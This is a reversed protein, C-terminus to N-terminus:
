NSRLNAMKSEDQWWLIEVPFGYDPKPEVFGFKDWYVARHSSVHWNPIWDMRARLVRDLVGMVTVLEERSKVTGIMAVLEDIAGDKIGPLNHTGPLDASASTLMTDFSDQTPTATLSLAMGVIDFDYDKLRVQYQVPDVLRLMANIGVLKLSEVFPQYVRVFTESEVLFELDLAQGAENKLTSGNRKWGAAVLQETARRLKKRDRGSGDSPTQMVAAGFAEDPIRGRLKELIALEAPSPMGQAKFDSREFISESREYSGYFLNQRTWEFDFCLNIAERVRRDRFRERRQNIAWAQMSPRKESPFERKIVKGSAVAPFDYGTAWTKSTFEQRFDIDGKKFAEFQPQRDRYFDIRIRDFNYLGRNVALDKGWYDAVREYTISSGAKVAGAKYPGSGLPPTMTSADFANATYYARSIVPIAAVTLIARDSQKGNFVLRLTQPDPAQAQALVGLPLQLAPHGKEKFTQYSFACDGATLPTGDHWQAEPRLRFTYTSRDASITVTEAILGYLADPEDLAPTMLSDFCLEMRPPADGKTVFSNLTNFTDVNQNYLWNPPAFRMEGGKPADPDVYGFHAFDAAYKLDGFASLGHVPTDSPVAAFAARGFLPAAAVSAAGALFSRRRWGASM